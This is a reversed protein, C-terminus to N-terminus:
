LITRIVEFPRNSIVRSVSSITNTLGQRTTVQYSKRNSTVSIQVSGREVPTRLVLIETFWVDAKNHSIILIYIVKFYYSFCSLV